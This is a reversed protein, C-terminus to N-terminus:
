QSIRRASRQRQLKKILLSFNKGRRWREFLDAYKFRTSHSGTPSDKQWLSVNPYDGGPEISFLLHLRLIEEGELEDTAEVVYVISDPNPVNSPVQQFDLRIRMANKAVEWFERCIWCVLMLALYNIAVTALYNRRDEANESRQRYRFIAILCAVISFVSVPPLWFPVSIMDLRRLATASGCM